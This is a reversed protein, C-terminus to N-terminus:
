IQTKRSSITKNEKDRKVFGTQNFKNTMPFSPSIVELCGFKSTRIHKLVSDCSIKHMIKWSNILDLLLSGCRSEHRLSHVLTFIQHPYVQESFFSPPYPLFVKSLRTKHQPISIFCSCFPTVSRPFWQLISTTAGLLLQAFYLSYQSFKLHFLICNHFYLLLTM